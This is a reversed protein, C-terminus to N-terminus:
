RAEAAPQLRGTGGRRSARLRELVVIAAWAYLTVAVFLSFRVAFAQYVDKGVASDQVAPGLLILMTVVVNQWFSPAFRSAIVGYLKGAYYIGFLLMWLFFMWLSPWIKLAFWFLIAFCGALFTSGLLERGASRVSVVSGQQALLVSKMIMPLYLSPNSFAMLVPPLVILTARLAIWGSIGAGAAPSRVPSERVPEEPYFPYVIWQCVIALGIGLLLAEVVAVALSYDVLGAAPILTFGVTLFTGILDKGLGVTVFTSLYLGAAIILVASLPYERLVPILLLGAGLTIMVVLILELLGKLRMPPAPTATLLVAFLPALFPLQMGLGYALALSLAVVSSLRFTRRAGIPM